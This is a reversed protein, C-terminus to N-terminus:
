ENNLMNKNLMLVFTKIFIKNNKWFINFLSFGKYIPGIVLYRHFLIETFVKIIFFPDLKWAKINYFQFFNNYKLKEEM